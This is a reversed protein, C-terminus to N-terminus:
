MRGPRPVSAAAARTPGLIMAVEAVQRWCHMGSHRLVFGIWRRQDCPVARERLVGVAQLGERRAHEAVARRGLVDRLVAEEREVAMKLLDGDGGVAGPEVAHCAVQAEVLQPAALELQAQEAVQLAVVVLLRERRDVAVAFPGVLEGLRALSSGRVFAALPEAYRSM